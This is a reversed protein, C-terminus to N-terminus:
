DAQRYYYSSESSYGIEGDEGTETIDTTIAIVTEVTTTNFDIGTLIIGFLTMAIIVAGTKKESGDMISHIRKKIGKMGNSLNASFVPEAKSHGQMMGIITECYRIRSETDTGKVVEYDCSLECQEAIVKGMIYVLPNFWHIATAILVLGKYWLDNRVFHILEHRLVLSLEKDSLELAPILLVPNVFGIQMPSSICPSILLRVPKTIGMDRSLKQLQIYQESDKDEEGWRRLLKTFRYHRRGQYLIFSIFGVLWVSGIIQYWPISVSETETGESLYIDQENGPPYGYIYIPENSFREVMIEFHIRFPVVLGIVLFLWSYYIWKARYKNMLRPTIILFCIILLSMAASNGVLLNLIREM